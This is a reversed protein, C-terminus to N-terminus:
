RVDGFHGAANYRDHGIDHVRLRRERALQGRLGEVASSLSVDDGRRALGPEDFARQRAGRQPVDDSRLGDDPRLRGALRLTRGHEVPHNRVIDYRKDFGRRLDGTAHYGRGSHHRVHFRRKRGLQRRRREIACSLSLHNGRRAVCPEDFALDRADPKFHDIPRVLGDHRVRRALRSRREHDVSNDRRVHHRQFCERELDHTAAATAARLRQEVRAGDHRGVISQSAYRHREQGHRRESSSRYQSVLHLEPGRDNLAADRGRGPRRRRVAPRLVDPHRQHGRQVRGLRSLRGMLGREREAIPGSRDRADASQARGVGPRHDDAHDRPEPQALGLLVRPAHREVVRAVRARSAYVLSEM